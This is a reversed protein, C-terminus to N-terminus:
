SNIGESEDVWQRITTQAYLKEETNIFTDQSSFYNDSIWGDPLTQKIIESLIESRQNYPIDKPIEFKHKKTVLRKNLVDTNFIKAKCETYSIRSLAKSFQEPTLEIRCFLVSALSDHIEIITKEANVLITIRPDKLEMKALKKGALM